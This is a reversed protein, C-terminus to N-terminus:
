VRRIRIQRPFALPLSCGTGTLTRRIERIVKLRIREAAYATKVEEVAVSEPVGSRAADHAAANIDATTAERAMCTTMKEEPVGLSSRRTHHNRPAGLVM